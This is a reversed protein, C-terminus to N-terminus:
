SPSILALTASATPLITPPPITPSPHYPTPSSPLPYPPLTQTSTLSSLAVPIYSILFSHCSYFRFFFFFTDLLSPLLLILFSNFLLLFSPFSYYSLLSPIIILFLFSYHLPFPLLLLSHANTRTHADTHMLVGTPLTAKTYVM